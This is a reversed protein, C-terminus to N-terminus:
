SAKEFATRIPPRLEMYYEWWHSLCRGQGGKKLTLVSHSDSRFRLGPWVVAVCSLRQFSVSRSIPRLPSEDPANGRDM